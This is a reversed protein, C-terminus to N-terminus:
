TVCAGLVTCCMNQHLKANISGQTSTRLGYVEISSTSESLPATALSAASSPFAPKYVSRCSAKRQKCPCNICVNFMISDVRRETYLVALAATKRGCKWFQLCLSHQLIPMQTTSPSSVSCSPPLSPPLSVSDALIPM